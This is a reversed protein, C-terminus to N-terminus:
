IQEDVTIGKIDEELLKGKDIMQIIDSITSLEELKPLNSEKIPNPNNKAETEKQKKAEELKKQLEEDVIDKTEQILIGIVEKSAAEIINAAEKQADVMPHTKLRALSIATISRTENSIGNKAEELRQKWIQEMAGYQLASKQYDTLPGMNKLQQLEVETIDESGFVSKELLELNKQETSDETIGYGIKLDERLSKLRTIQEAALDMDKTLQKQHDKRAIIGDDIKTERKFQNLITKMAKKNAQHEHQSVRDQKKTLNGAFLSYNESKINNVQMM